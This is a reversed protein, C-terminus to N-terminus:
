AADGLYQWRSEPNLVGLDVLERASRHDGRQDGSRPYPPWVREGPANADRFLPRSSVDARKPRSRPAANM